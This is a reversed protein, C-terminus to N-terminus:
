WEELYTMIEMHTSFSIKEIKLEFDEEEQKEIMKDSYIFEYLIDYASDGRFLWTEVNEISSHTNVDIKTLVYYEM